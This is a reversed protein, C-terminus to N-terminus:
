RIIVKQIESQGNVLLEVLYIGAGFARNITTKTSSLMNEYQKQGM